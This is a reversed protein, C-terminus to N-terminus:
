SHWWERASTRVTATLVPEGVVPSYGSSRPHQGCAYLLSISRYRGNSAPTSTEIREIVDHPFERRRVLAVPPVPFRSRPEPCARQTRWSAMRWFNLRVEGPPDLSM